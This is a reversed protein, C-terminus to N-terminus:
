RSRTPKPTGAPRPPTTASTCCCGSTAAEGTPGPGCSCSGARSSTAPSTSTCSVPPSPPLRSQAAVSAPNYLPHEYEMRDIVTSPDVLDEGGLTVLYPTTTDLRQLRTLDYTVTLSLNGPYGEEGDKSTYTLEVGEATPTGKWLVKDFGVLGGHLGREAPDLGLEPRDLQIVFLMNCSAMEHCAVKTVSPINCASKLHELYIADFAAKRIM